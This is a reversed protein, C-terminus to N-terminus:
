AAAKPAIGTPTSRMSASNSSLRSPLAAFRQRLETGSPETGRQMRIKLASAIPRVRAGVLRPTASRFGVGVRSSDARGVASRQSVRRDRTPSGRVPHGPLPLHLDRVVTARVVYWILGAAVILVAIILHSLQTRQYRDARVADGHVLAIRGAVLMGVLTM